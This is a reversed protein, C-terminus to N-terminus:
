PELRFQRRLATLEGRAEMHPLEQEVWHHLQAGLPHAKTFLMHFANPGVGSLQARGLELDEDFRYGSLASLGQFVEEGVVMVDIRGHHLMQVLNAYSKARVFKQPEADQLQSYAYGLVGGVVFRKLDAPKQIDLGNRHQRLSWFYFTRTTYLPRSLWFDRERQANRSANLLMHYPKGHRVGEECRKWPVLDLRFSVNQRTLIRRIVEVTYGTVERTKQTGSRVWYTYPPWEAEDDCIRIETDAREGAQAWCSAAVVWSAILTSWVRM